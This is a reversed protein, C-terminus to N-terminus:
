PQFMQYDSPIVFLAEDIGEKLEEIDLINSDGEFTMEIGDLEKGDFYYRIYGGEVAYEEYPRLNGMFVAEGKGSFMMGDTDIDVPEAAGAEAAQETEAPFAMVMKQEHMVLYLTGDKMISTSEVLDSDFIMAYNEGDMAMTIEGEIEQGEINSITKYKMTYQDKQMISAFTESLREELAAAPEPTSATEGPTEEAPADAPADPEAPAPSSCGTVSLSVILILGILYFLRKM